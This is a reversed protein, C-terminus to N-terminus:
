SPTLGGPAVVFFLCDEEAVGDHREGPPAFFYQGTDLVVDALAMGSSDTRQGIRLRGRVMYSEEGGPQDHLPARAGKAMAVLFTAGQDEHRRLLRLEVGPAIESSAPESPNIRSSEHHEM